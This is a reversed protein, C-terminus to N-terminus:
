WPEPSKDSLKPFKGLYNISGDPMQIPTPKRIPWCKLCIEIKTKKAEKLTIIVLPALSSPACKRCFHCVKAESCAMYMPVDDAKSETTDKNM